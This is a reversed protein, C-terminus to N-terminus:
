CGCLYLIETRTMLSETKIHEKKCRNCIRLRCNTYDKEIFPESLFGVSFFDVKFFFGEHKILVIHTFWGIRPDIKDGYKEIKMHTQDWHKSIDLILEKITKVYITTNLSDELSGRHYRFLPM